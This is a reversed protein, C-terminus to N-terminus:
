QNAHERHQEEMGDVRARLESVRTCEKCQKEVGEKRVRKVRRKWACDRSVSMWAGKASRSDKM